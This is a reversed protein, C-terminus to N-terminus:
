RLEPGMRTQVESKAQQFAERAAALHKEAHHLTGGNKQAEYELEAMERSTGIFGFNAASGKIQHALNAVQHSSSSAIAVQLADLLKPLEQEFEQYIQIFDPLLGCTIAEFQAWDLNQHPTKSDSSDTQNM